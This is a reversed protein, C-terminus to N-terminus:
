GNTTVKSKEETRKRAATKLSLWGVLEKPENSYFVETKADRAASVFAKTRKIDVGSGLLVGIAKKQALAVVLERQTMFENWGVLAVVDVSSVLDSPWQFVWGDKERDFSSYAIKKYATILEQPIQGVGFVPGDALVAYVGAGNKKATEGVYDTLDPEPKTRSYVDFGSEALTKGLVTAAMRAAHGQKKGFLHSKGMLSPDGGGIIGVKKKDDGKNKPATDLFAPAPHYATEYMGPSWMGYGEDNMDRYAYFATHGNLSKGDKDLLNGDHTAIKFIKTYGIKELGARIMDYTKGTIESDDVVLATKEKFQQLVGLEAPHIFLEDRMSTGDEFRTEGNKSAGILVYGLPMGGLEKLLDMVLPTTPISGVLNSLVIVEENAFRLLPSKTKSEMSEIDSKLPGMFAWSSKNTVEFYKRGGMQLGKDLQERLIRLSEACEEFTNHAFTGAWLRRIDHELLVEGKASKAAMEETFKSLDDKRTIYEKPEVLGFANRFPFVATEKPHWAWNGNKYGDIKRM